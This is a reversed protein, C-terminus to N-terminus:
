SQFHAPQALGLTRRIAAVLADLNLPKQFFETAFCDAGGIISPPLATIVFIPMGPRQMNEHFLLDWGSIDGMNLDTIMLDPQRENLCELAEEGTQATIVQWKELLLVRALSVLVGVDDDVLLITPSDPSAPPRKTSRFRAMEQLLQATSERSKSPQFSRPM